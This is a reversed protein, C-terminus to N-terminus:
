IGASGMIIVRQKQGPSEVHRGRNSCTPVGGWYHTCESRACSSDRHLQRGQAIDSGSALLLTNMMKKQKKKILVPESQVEVCPLTNQSPVSHFPKDHTLFHQSSSSFHPLLWIPSLRSKFGPGRAGLALIMGRSWQAM